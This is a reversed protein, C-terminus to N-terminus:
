PSAQSPPPAPVESGPAPAAGSPAESPPAPAESAPAPAESAPAPPESTPAPPESGPTPLTGAAAGARAARVVRIPTSLMQGQALARVGATPLANIVLVGEEPRAASCCQQLLKEANEATFIGTVVEFMERVDEANGIAIPEKPWAAYGDFETGFRRYWIVDGGIPKLKVGGERQVGVRLLLEDREPRRLFYLAVYQKPDGELKMAAEVYPIVYHPVTISPIPTGDAAEFTRLRIYAQKPVLNVATKWEDVVALEGDDGRVLYDIRIPVTAGPQGTFTHQIDCDPAELTQEGIHFRFATRGESGEPTVRDCTIKATTDVMVDVPRYHVKPMLVDEIRLNFVVAKKFENLSERSRVTYIAAIVLGSSLLALIFLARVRGKM